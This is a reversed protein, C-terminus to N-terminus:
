GILQILKRLFGRFKKNQHTNLRQIIIIQVRRKCNNNNEKRKGEEREGEKEKKKRGVHKAM